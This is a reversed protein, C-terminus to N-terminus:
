NKLTGAWLSTIHVCPFHNLVSFPLDEATDKQEKVGAAACLRYNGRCLQDHSGGKGPATTAMRQSVDGPTLPFCRDGAM